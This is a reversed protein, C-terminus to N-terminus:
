DVDIVQWEPSNNALAINQSCYNWQPAQFIYAIASCRPLSTSTRPLRGTVPIGLFFSEDQIEKMAALAHQNLPAMYHDSMEQGRPPMKGMITRGTLQLDLRSAFADCVPFLFEQELGGFNPVVGPVNFGLAKLLRKGEKNLADM